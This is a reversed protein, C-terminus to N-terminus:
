RVSYWEVLIIVNHLRLNLYVATKLLTAIAILKLMETNDPFRKLLLLLGSGGADPAVNVLGLFKISIKSVPEKDRSDENVRYLRNSDVEIATGPM